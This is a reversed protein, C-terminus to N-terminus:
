PKFKFVGYPMTRRSKGGNYTPSENIHSATVFISGDPGESFTDPWQLRRDTVITEVKRAPTLRSVADHQLDSLYINDKADMWIGDVPFTDAYKEPTVKGTGSADRLADTRVRYLV